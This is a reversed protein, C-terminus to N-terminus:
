DTIVTQWDDSDGAYRPVCVYFASVTSTAAIAVTSTIAVCDYTAGLYRPDIEFIILKDTQAVGSAYNLANARQTIVDSAACALNSWIPVTTALVVNGVPAVATARMPTWTIATADRQRYHVVMFVKHLNKVSIYDGVVVAAAGIQPALAEVIYANEPIHIM